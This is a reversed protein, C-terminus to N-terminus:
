KKNIIVSKSTLNEKSLEFNHYPNYDDLIFGVLNEIADEKDECNVHLQNDKEVVSFKNAGQCLLFFSIIKVINNM